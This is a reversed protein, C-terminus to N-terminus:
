KPKNVSLHHTFFKFNRKLSKAGNTIHDQLIDKSKEISYSAMLSNKSSLFKRVYEEIEKRDRITSFLDCVISIFFSQHYRIVQFADKCYKIFNKWDEESFVKLMKKSFSFRPADIGIPSRNFIYGFDIHFFIEGNHILMNDQHRDRVGLIFCSVYSGAMSLLFIKKKEDSLNNWVKWDFAEVSKCNEIFEICGTTTDFPTVAYQFIFPKDLLHSGQWLLNCVSFITQIYLDQRLDDGTKYIFLRSSGGINKQSVEVLM